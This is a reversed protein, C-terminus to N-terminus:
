GHVVQEDDIAAPRSLGILRPERRGKCPFEHVSSRLQHDRIERRRGASELVQLMSSLVAGPLPVHTRRQM